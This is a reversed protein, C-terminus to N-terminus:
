PKSYFVFKQSKLLKMSSSERSVKNLWKSIEEQLQQRYSLAMAQSNIIRDTDAASLNGKVITFLPDVKITWETRAQEFVQEFRDNQTQLASIRQLENTDFINM